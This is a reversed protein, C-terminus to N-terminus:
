HASAGNVDITAAHQGTQRQRGRHWSTVDSRDFTACLAVIQM